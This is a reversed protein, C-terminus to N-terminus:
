RAWAQDKTLVPFRRRLGAHDAIAAAQIDLSWDPRSDLWFSSGPVNSEFADRHGEDLCGKCTQLVGDVIPICLPLKVLRYKTPGDTLHPTLNPCVEAIDHRTFADGATFCTPPDPFDQCLVLICQCIDTSILDFSVRATANSTQDLFGEWTKGETIAAGDPHAAVKPQVLKPIYLTHVKNGVFIIFGPTFKAM